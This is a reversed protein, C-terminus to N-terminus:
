LSLTHKLPYPYKLNLHCYDTTISTHIHQISVISFTQHLIVNNQTIDFYINVYFIYTTLYLHIEIFQFYDNRSPSQCYM